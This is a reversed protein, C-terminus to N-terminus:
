LTGRARTSAPAMLLSFFVRAAPASHLPPTDTQATLTQPLAAPASPKTECADERIQEEAAAMTNNATQCPHCSPRPPSQARWQIARRGGGLDSRWQWATRRHRHRDQTPPQAPRPTVRIKDAKNSIDGDCTDYSIRAGRPSWVGTPWRWRRTTVTRVGCECEKCKHGTLAPLDDGAEKRKTRGVVRM